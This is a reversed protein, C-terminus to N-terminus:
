SVEWGLKWVLVAAGTAFMAAIIVVPLMITGMMGMSTLTAFIGGAPTFAGYMFSQFAAALSGISSLPNSHVVCKSSQKVYCVQLM